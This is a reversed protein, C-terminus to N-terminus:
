KKITQSLISELANISDKMHPHLHVILNYKSSDCHYLSDLYKKYENIKALLFGLRESPYDPFTRPIILITTHPRSIGELAKSHQIAQICIELSVAVGVLMFFFWYAKLKKMSWDKSSRNLFDCIRAQMKKLNRVILIKM